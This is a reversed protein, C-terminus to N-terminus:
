ATDECEHLLHLENKSYQINTNHEASTNKHRLTTYRTVTEFMRKRWYESAHMLTTVRMPWPLIHPRPGRLEIGCAAKCRTSLLMVIEPSM